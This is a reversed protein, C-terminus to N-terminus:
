VRCAAIENIGKLYCLHPIHIGASQAAELITTGEPVQLPRNDITLNVM